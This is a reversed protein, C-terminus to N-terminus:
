GDFTIRVRLFGTDKWANPLSHRVTEAGDEGPTAIEDFVREDWVRGDLSEEIGYRLDDAGIPRRYTLWTEGSENKIEPGSVIGFKLLSSNGDYELVDSEGPSGNPFRSTRWATPDGQRSSDTGKWVLSFGNETTPWPLKNDYNIRILETGTASNLVLAEGNNDLRTENQFVGAIDADGHSEGFATTNRVLVIRENPQVVHNPPFVFDIGETFNAGSLDIDRNSDNLLEIFEADPNQPDFLIESIVIDGRAPPEFLYFTGEIMASWEDQYLSRAKVTTPETVTLPTETLAVPNLEGGPLRPDSGNSTYYVTGLAFISERAPAIDTESNVLGPTVPFVPARIDSLLGSNQLQRITKKTRSTDGEAGGFFNDSINTMENKWHALTYPNSPRILDGWRASEGVVARDIERGMAWWRERNAADRLVGTRSLHKQVRDAIRIRFEPNAKLLRFVEAATTSHGIGTRDVNAGVLSEESDWCLFRFGFEGPKHFTYSNNDPWDTNGIMFNLLMYDILNDIDLQGQIRQYNEPDTVDGRVDQLMANWNQTGGYSAKVAGNSRIWKLVEYDEEPGGFRSEAFAEDIRETLNYLGWYLGNIYLHVFRGPSFPHGMDRQSDRAFEDRLYTTRELSNNTTGTLARWPSPWAKGNGSRLILKDYRELPTDPFLPYNLRSVGYESRFYIRLSKKLMEPYRNWGGTMRLGCNAQFRHQGDGDILELSAQREWPRGRMRANVHLGTDPDLLENPDIALSLTSVQTLADVFGFEEGDLDTWPGANTVRPDMEYDSSAPVSSVVGPSNSWNEPYATPRRQDAVADLDIFTATVSRSALWDDRDAMARVVTTGLIELPGTYTKTSLSEPQPDSGDLTYYISADETESDISLTLSGELFGGPHSFIPAQVTGAVGSKNPAGPSPTCFFAEQGFPDIGFSVDATQEGYEWVSIAQDDPNALAVYGGERPLKFDANWQSPVPLGDGIAFVIGYAGAELIANEPFVWGPENKENELQYGALPIEVPNPNHIEIWDPTNGSSDIIGTKNSSLFETIELPFLQDDVIVSFFRRESRDELRATLTYRTSREPTITFSGSGSGEFLVKNGAILEVSTDTDTAWSVATSQGESLFPPTLNAADFLPEIEIPSWVEVEGLHLVRNGQPNVGLADFGIRLADIERPPSVAFRIERGAGPDNITATFVADEGEFLRLKTNTLRGGCCDSRTHIVIETVTVPKPFSLTWANSPSNADTHSFTSLDGDIANAAPYQGDNWETSQSATGESTINIRDEQALLASSFFLTVSFLLAPTRFSPTRHM